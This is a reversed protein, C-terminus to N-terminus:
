LDETIVVHDPTKETFNHENIPVVTRRLKIGIMATLKKGTIIISFVMNGAMIIYVISVLVVDIKNRTNESVDLENIPIIVFM